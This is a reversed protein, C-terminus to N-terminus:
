SWNIRLTFIIRIMTIIM